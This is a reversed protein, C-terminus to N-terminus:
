KFTGQKMRARIDSVPTKENVGASNVVPNSKIQGLPRNNSGKQDGGSILAHSLAVLESAQEVPHLKSIRALAEPDKGLKYLVEGASGPGKKPLMLAADRMHPTFPADGRVVDDFDDYKDATQDLHKQLDQYKQAIHQQSQLDKAKREEMDRHQLAFSVAKHIADDVGGQNGMAENPNMQQNQNFQNPQLQSQMEAMRAQMERMEREHARKLQKIRKQVALTEGKNGDGQQHSGGSDAQAEEAEEIAEKPEGLGDLVEGTLSETDNGSMDQDSDM